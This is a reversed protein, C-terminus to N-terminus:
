LNRGCSTCLLLNVLEVGDGAKVALEGDFSKLPRISLGADARQQM